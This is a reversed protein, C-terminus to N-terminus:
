IEQSFENGVGDNTQLPLIEVDFPAVEGPWIIGGSDHTSKLLRTPQDAASVMGYCGHIM